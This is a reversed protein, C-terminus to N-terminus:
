RWFLGNQGQVAVFVGLVLVVFVYRVNIYLVRVAVDIIKKIGRELGYRLM